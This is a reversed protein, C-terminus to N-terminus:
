EKVKYVVQGNFRLDIYDLEEIKKLLIKKVNVDKIAIGLTKGLETSEVGPLIRIRPLELFEAGTDLIIEDYENGYVFGYVPMKYSNIEDKIAMIRTIEIPSMVIDGLKMENLNGYFTFFPAYTYVPAISGARGNKHMLVCDIPKNSIADLNCYMNNFDPEVIVVTLVKNVRLHVSEIRPFNKLIENQLKEKKIFLFSNKPILFYKYGSIKENVFSSVSGADVLGNGTVVVSNVRFTPQRVFYFFGVVLFLFLIKLLISLRRRKAHNHAHIAAQQHKLLSNSM